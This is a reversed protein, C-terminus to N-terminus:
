FYLFWEEPLLGIDDFVARRVLMCAGTVYAVDRPPGVPVEDDRRGSHLHSTAGFADDDIEGGDFWITTPKSGGLLIRPGIIGADPIAEMTELLFELTRPEVRTDPNLLWVFDAQRDLAYRIGLNNGGAYGLNEPSAIVPRAPCGRHLDDVASPGSGNDVIVVSQNRASSRALAAVCGVTDDVHRYNLIVTFVRPPPAVADGPGADPRRAVVPQGRLRRLLQIPARLRTALWLGLRVSRRNLLRQHAEELRDRADRARELLYELRLVVLEHERELVATRLVLEDHEAGLAAVRQRLSTADDDDTNM